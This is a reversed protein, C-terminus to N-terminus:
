KPKEVLTVQTGSEGINQILNGVRSMESVGLGTKHEGVGEVLTVLGGM